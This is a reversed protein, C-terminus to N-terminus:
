EATLRQVAIKALQVAAAADVNATRYTIEVMRDGSLFYLSGGPGAGVQDWPGDLTDAAEGTAGVANTIGQSLGAVMRFLMKGNEWTPQISLMRHKGLYYSCGEGSPDARNEDDSRFPPVTLKGLVAEAEARTVLRCADPDSDHGFGGGHAKASAVPVDPLRDRVLAALQNVSDDPIDPSYSGQFNTKVEVAIAGLRGVFSGPLRSANDWGPPVKADMGIAHMAPKFIGSDADNAFKQTMMSAGSEAATVDETVLEVAVWYHTEDDALQGHTALPYVCAHGKPSPEPSEADDARWPAGSLPGVLRAADDASIWHCPDTDAALAKMSASAGDSSGNGGSSADGSRQCAALAFLPVLLAAIAVRSVDPILSSRM